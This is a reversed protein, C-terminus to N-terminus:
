WAWRPRTADKNIWDVTSGPGSLKGSRYADNWAQTRRDASGFLGGTITALTDLDIAEIKNQM